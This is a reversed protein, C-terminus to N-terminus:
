IGGRPQRDGQRSKVEDGEVEKEQQAGATVRALNRNRLSASSWGAM